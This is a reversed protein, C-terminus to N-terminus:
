FERILSFKHMYDDLIYHSCEMIICKTLHALFVLYRIISERCPLPPLQVDPMPNWNETRVRYTDKALISCPGPGTPQRPCAGLRARVLAAVLYWDLKWIQDLIFSYYWITSIQNNYLQFLHTQTGGHSIRSSPCGLNAFISWLMLLIPTWPKNRESKDDLLLRTWAFM